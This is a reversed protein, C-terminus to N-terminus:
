GPKIKDKEELLDRTRKEGRDCVCRMSFDAGGQGSRIGHHWHCLHLAQVMELQHKQACHTDQPMESICAVALPFCGAIKLM